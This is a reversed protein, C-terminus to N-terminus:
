DQTAKFPQCTGKIGEIPEVKLPQTKYEVDERLLEIAMKVADKQSINSHKIVIVDIFSNSNHICEAIM